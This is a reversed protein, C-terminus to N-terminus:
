INMSARRSEQLGREVRQPLPALLVSSLRERPKGASVSPSKTM